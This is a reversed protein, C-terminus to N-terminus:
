NHFVYGNSIYNHGKHNKVIVTYKRDKHELIYFAPKRFRFMHIQLGDFVKRKRINKLNKM